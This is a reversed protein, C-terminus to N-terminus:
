GDSKIIVVDNGSFSLKVATWEVDFPLRPSHATTATRGDDSDSIDFPWSSMTTALRVYMRLIGCM